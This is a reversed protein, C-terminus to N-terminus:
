PPDHASNIADFSDTEVARRWLKWVARAVLGPEEVTICSPAAASSAADPPEHFHKEPSHDNPHRDFRWHRDDADVYHFSYAGSSYWTVDLRSWDAAIGASFHIHLTRQIIPDDWSWDAVLPEGELFLDRIDTLVDVSIRGVDGGLESSPIRGPAPPGDEM